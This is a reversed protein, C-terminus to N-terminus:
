AICYTYALPLAEPMIALVLCLSCVFNDLLYISFSIYMSSSADHEEKQDDMHIGPQPSQNSQHTPTDIYKHKALYYRVAMGLLFVVGAWNALIGLYVNLNDLSDTLVFKNSFGIKEARGSTMYKRSHVGVACVVAVGEGKLVYNGAFLLNSIHPTSGQSDGM